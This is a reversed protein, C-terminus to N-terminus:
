RRGVLLAGAIAFGSTLHMLGLALKTGLTADGLGAPGAMSLLGFIVAIAAFVVDARRTVRQLVAFLLIAFVAPVFSAMTVHGAGITELASEPGGPRGTFPVGLGSSIGWIALNVVWAAAAGSLGIKFLVSLPAPDNHTTTM